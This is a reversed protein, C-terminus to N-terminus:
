CLNMSNDILIAIDLVGRPSCAYSPVRKRGQAEHNTRIFPGALVFHFLRVAQPVLGASCGSSDGPRLSGTACGSKATCYSILALSSVVM